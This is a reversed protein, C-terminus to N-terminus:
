LFCVYSCKKRLYKTNYAFYAMMETFLNVIVRNQNYDVDATPKMKKKENM